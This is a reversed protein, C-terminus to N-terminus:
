TELEHDREDVDQGSTYSKSSKRGSPQSSLRREHSLPQASSASNQVEMFESIMPILDHLQIDLDHLTKENM